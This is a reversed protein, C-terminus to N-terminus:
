GAMNLRRSPWHTPHKVCHQIRIFALKCSRDIRLRIIIITDKMSIPDVGIEFSVNPDLTYVGNSCFRVSIETGCIFKGLVVVVM